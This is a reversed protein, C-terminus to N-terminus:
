TNEKLWEVVKPFAIHFWVTYQGPNTILRMQITQVDFYEYDEVENSAPFIEGQYKGLFVHDFEHETLGNDFVAKYTFELIKQLPTNFGMEEFLRRNAANMIDEGPAPHSCCANTWLGPSHYKGSARKQLLMENNSNLIFISFARHLVANQHALMKEMVGVQRDSEDVLIVQDM